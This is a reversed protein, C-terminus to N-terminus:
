SSGKDGGWRQFVSEEEDYSGAASHQRKTTALADDGDDVKLKHGNVM